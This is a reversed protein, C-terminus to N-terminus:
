NFSTLKNPHWSSHSCVLNAVASDTAQQVRPIMLDSEHRTTQDGTAARSSGVHSPVPVTLATRTIGGLRPKGGRTPSPCGDPEPLEPVKKGGGIVPTEALRCCGQGDLLGRDASANPIELIVKSGRQELSRVAPNAQSDCPLLEHRSGTMGQTLDVDADRPDGRDPARFLTDELDADEGRKSGTEQEVQQAGKSSLVGFDPYMQDVAVRGFMDRGNAVEFQVRGEDGPCTGPVSAFGLLEPEFMDKHNQGVTVREYGFGGERPRVDGALAEDDAVCWRTRFNVVVEDRM